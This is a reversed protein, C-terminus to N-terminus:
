GGALKGLVGVGLLFCALSRFLVNSIVHVINDRGMRFDEWTGVLFSFGSLILWDLVTFLGLVELIHEM